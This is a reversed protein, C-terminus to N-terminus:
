FSLSISVSSQQMVWEDELFVLALELRLVPRPLAAPRRPPSARRRRCRRYLLSAPACSPSLSLSLLPLRSPGNLPGEKDDTLVCYLPGGNPSAWTEEKGDALLRCHVLM